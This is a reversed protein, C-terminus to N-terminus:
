PKIKGLDTTVLSGNTDVTVRWYHGASDKHVAGKAASDVIVDDATDTGPSLRSKSAQISKPFDVNGASLHALADELRRGLEALYANVQEALKEPDASGDAGRLDQARIEIGRTPFRRLPVSM